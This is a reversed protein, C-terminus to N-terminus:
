KVIAYDDELPRYYWQGCDCTWPLLSSNNGSLAKKCTPCHPWVTKIKIYEPKM